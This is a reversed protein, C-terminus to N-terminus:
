GARRRDRGRDGGVCSALRPPAGPSCCSRCNWGSSGVTASTTSTLPPALGPERDYDRSTVGREDFPHPDGVFSTEEVEPDGYRLGGLSFEHLFIIWEFAAQNGLHLENLHWSLPVALRRWVPPDIGDLAVRVHRASPEKYRM